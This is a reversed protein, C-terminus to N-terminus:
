LLSEPIIEVKNTGRNDLLGKTTVTVINGCKSGDDLTRNCKLTITNREEPYLTWVNGLLLNCKDCFIYSMKSELYLRAQEKLNDIYAVVSSEKDSKRIRRTINLDEQFRSIDKRLSSCINSIRDVININSQGIDGDTRIDFVLREYDELAIIAQVFARLTERDNIKLDDIDYDQSFEQIKKQIREEFDQSLGSSHQKEEFMKDFEDDTLDRYQFMNRLQAKSQKRKPKEAM